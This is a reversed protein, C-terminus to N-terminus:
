KENKLYEHLTSLFVANTPCGRKQSISNGFLSQISQDSCNDWSSEIAYRINKEVSKGSINHLKALAPYLAKTYCNLLSPDDLTLMLADFVIKYGKTGSALGVRHLIERVRKKNIAVIDKTPATSSKEFLLGNIRSDLDIFDLPFLCYVDIGIEYLRNISKDLMGSGVVVFATGRLLDRKKLMQYLSCCDMDFLHRSCVIVQPSLQAIQKASDLAYQSRGVINYDFENAFATIETEIQRDASAIFLSLRQASTELHM